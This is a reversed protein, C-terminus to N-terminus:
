GGGSKETLWVKMDHFDLSLAGNRFMEHGVTADFMGDPVHVGATAFYVPAKKMVVQPGFAEQKSEAEMMKVGGDTYSFDRAKESKAEAGLGLKEVATPFILMTGTFMTDIQATVPKENISFGTAVLIPPGQKGFTPTTLEGCYGPCPIAAALVESTRVQKGAYDLELLRDKFATYALTGDAAPMHKQKVEATIDLVLVKLDGLEADGMKVEALKTQGFGEIPKGDRGNVPLVTLGLSKAVETDLISNVNGTDILMKLHKGGSVTVDVCPLGECDIMAAGRLQPTQAGALTAGATLLAALVGFRMRRNIWM